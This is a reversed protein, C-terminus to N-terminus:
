TDIVQHQSIQIGSCWWSFLKPLIPQEVPFRSKGRDLLRGTSGNDFPLEQLAPALAQTKPYFSSLFLYKSLRSNRTWYINYQNNPNLVGM